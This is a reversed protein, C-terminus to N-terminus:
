ELIKETLKTSLGVYILNNRDGSRKIIENLARKKKLLSAERLHALNASPLKDIQLKGKKKAMEM